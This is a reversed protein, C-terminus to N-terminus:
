FADWDQKLAANGSRPYSKATAKMRSLNEAPAKRVAPRRAEAVPQIGGDVVFVAVIPANVASKRGTIDTAIKVM